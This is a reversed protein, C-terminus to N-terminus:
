GIMMKAEPYDCVETRDSLRLMIAYTVTLIGVRGFFMIIMLIIHSFTGLEPTLSLSLGVTASASFVEFMAAMGPSGAYILLFVGLMTLVFQIVTVSFARLINAESVSRKFIVLKKRGRLTNLVTLLVIGVTGVKVGGAMSGSAGGIFMLFIMVIHTTTQLANLDVTNYGATRVTVSQFLAALVKEPPSLPGLTEGNNWEFFLILIAGGLILWVTFLVVFKTYASLRKRHTFFDYIEDWVVFGIGGIVILIMIVMNVLWDGSFATLSSFHGSYEGFLDFGANCFASVSHFLSLWVGRGVGFLPIFRISLLVAGFIEFIVTGLVLRRVFRVIGSASSLNLSSAVVMREKPTIARKLFLSLIIALSMFGLGGLQIMLLIVAEGFASWYTATDEVVLGTVCTASVSTFAATLFPAGKGSETALPLCLLLSGILIISLFSLVITQTPTMRRIKKRKQVLEM